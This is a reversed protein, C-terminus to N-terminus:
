LTHMMLGKEALMELFGRGGERGGERGGIDCCLVQVCVCM